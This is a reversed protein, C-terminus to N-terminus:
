EYKKRSAMVSSCVSYEPRCPETQIRSIESEMCIQLSVHFQIYHWLCKGLLFPVCSLADARLSPKTSKSKSNEAMTGMTSHGIQWIDVQGLLIPCISCYKLSLNVFGLDVRGSASGQLYRIEGSMIVGVLLM